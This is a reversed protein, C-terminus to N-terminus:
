APRIKFLSQGFQVPQANEVCIETVVGAVECEIENMLKMAEVICLVQGAKVTAGVEVYPPADPSPARYFTGVMPSEVAVSGDDVPEAETPTAPTSPALAPAPASVPAVVAPAGLQLDLEMESDKFHFAHVDNDSLLKLLAEIKELDM